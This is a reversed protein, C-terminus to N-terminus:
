LSVCPPPPPPGPAGPPPLARLVGGSGMPAGEAGEFLSSIAAQKLLKVLADVTPLEDGPVAVQPVPETRILSSACCGQPPYCMLRLM